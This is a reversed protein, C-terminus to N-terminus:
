ERTWRTKCVTLWTEVSDRDGIFGSFSPKGTTSTFMGERGKYGAAALDGQGHM